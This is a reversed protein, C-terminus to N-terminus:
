EHIGTLKRSKYFVNDRASSRKRTPQEFAKKKRVESNINNSFNAGFCNFLARSIHPLITNALRHGEQCRYGQLAQDSAALFELLHRFGERHRMALSLFKMKCKKKEEKCMLSDWLSMGFSTMHVMPLSPRNLVARRSELEGRDVLEVLANFVASPPDGRELEVSIEIEASHGFNTPVANDILRKRKRQRGGHVIPTSKFDTDKFHLSCCYRKASRDDKEDRRINKLWRARLQDDVPFKHLTIPAEKATQRQEVEKNSLYVTKCDM